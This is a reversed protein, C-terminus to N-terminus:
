QINKTGHIRQRENLFRFTSLIKSFIGINRVESHVGSDVLILQIYHDPKLVDNWQPVQFRSNDLAMWSIGDLYGSKIDWFLRDIFTGSNQIIQVTKFQGGGLFHCIFIALQQIKVSNLTEVLLM